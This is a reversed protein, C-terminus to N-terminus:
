LSDFGHRKEYLMRVMGDCLGVMPVYMERCGAWEMIRIYIDLGLPLLDARDPKLGYRECREKVDLPALLQYIRKMEDLLVPKGTRGGALGFAANINGGTGVAKAPVGDEVASRIWTEMETWVDRNDTGTGANLLRIAGLDFSRSHAIKGDVFISIETSGGGVDVCLIRSGSFFDKQTYFQISAETVGDLIQIAIGTKKQIQECIEPANEANRLAATACAMVACPEYAEMILSFGEMIKEFRRIGAQSIKGSDFSDAGLRIPLRIWSIQRPYGGPEDSSVGSILLRVANSGIDIAAYTETPFSRM